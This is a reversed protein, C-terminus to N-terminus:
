RKRGITKARDDALQLARRKADQLRDVEARSGLPQSTDARGTWTLFSGSIHSRKQKPASEQCKTCQGQAGFRLNKQFQRM